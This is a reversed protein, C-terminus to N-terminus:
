YVLQLYYNKGLASDTLVLLYERGRARGITRQLDISLYGDEQVLGTNDKLVSSNSGVDILKVSYEAGINDEPRFNLRDGEVIHRPVSANKAVPLIGDSLGDPEADKAIKFSWVESRAVEKGEYYAKVQWVYEKGVDMEKYIPQNVLFPISVNSEKIYAFNVAMAEDFSQGQFVEKLVFLYNLQAQPFGPVSLWSWSNVRTLESKNFPKSLQLNQLRGAKVSFCHQHLIEFNASTVINVCVRYDGFLFYGTNLYYSRFSADFFETFELDLQGSLLNTGRNLVVAGSSLLAVQNGEADSITFSFSCEVDDNLSNIVILKGLHNVGYYESSIQQPLVSITSGWCKLCFIMVALVVSLKKM